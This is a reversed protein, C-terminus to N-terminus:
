GRRFVGCLEVHTSWLFQDVVTVTELRYGGSCLIKADRCFSNLDCSIAVVTPVAAAALQEAQAKAGDRPPDFIVAQFRKLEHSTLPERILNRAMVATQARGRLAQQLHEIAAGDSDIATVARPSLALAFTGIGCFLDAVPAAKGVAAVVAASLAAEGQETAQLFGGPPFAVQGHAFNARVPAHQVILEDASRDWKRWSVRGIKAQEAWASLLTRERLGPEHGGIVVCDLVGDLLTLRLDLKLIGDMYDALMVRLSPLLETIEPRLVSCMQLDIVQHSKAQNFGLTINKGQRTAAFTVRRRSHPPSIMPESYHAPNLGNQELATRVFNQKWHRYAADEMHQMKCGGCVPFHVCSPAAHAAGPVIIRHEVLRHAADFIVDVEDGALAGPVFVPRGEHLAVGDGHRGTAVVTLRLAM